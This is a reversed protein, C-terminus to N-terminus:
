RYLRAALMRYDLLERACRHSNEKLVDLEGANKALRRFVETIDEVTKVWLINGYDLERVYGEYPYALVASDCCISNQMTASVDGPQCYLDCACLYEQLEEGTKWGLYRVRSDQAMLSTLLEKRGEPISGIVALKANLEPVAAFARLLDDTRKLADLKGTHVLLLEDEALGLEKRRCARKEAYEEDSFIRGGLPYFEMLAEPVGYNELSFQREAWGIYFYKELYPLAQQVLYRYFIRHLVHLSLWNSGSNYAATHTDAYLKVGPHDKKYRIVDRVSWYALSHSMIVDPQFEDLIQYLGKVKRVKGSIMRNIIKQYSLRILRMGNSLVVDEEDTEELIGSETYMQNNCVFLVQHGDKINQETLFNNQYTMGETFAGAIEVHAIKM